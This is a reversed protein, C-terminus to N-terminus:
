PLPVLLDKGCHPCTYYLIQKINPTLEFKFKAKLLAAYEAAAKEDKLHVHLKRKWCLNQAKKPKASLPLGRSPNKLFRLADRLNSVNELKLLDRNEHIRMYNTASHHSFELNNKAWNMWDGHELKSKQEVLLEGIRLAKEVYTRGFTQWAGQIEAHLRNIESVASPIRALSRKSM